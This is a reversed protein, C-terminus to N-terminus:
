FLIQAHTSKFPASIEMKTFVSWYLCSQFKPRPQLQANINSVSFKEISEGAKEILYLVLIIVFIDTIVVLVAVTSADDTEKSEKDGVGDEECKLRLV